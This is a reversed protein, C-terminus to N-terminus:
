EAPAAAAVTLSAGDTTIAVAGDRDTRWVRAGARRLAELTSPAPHGFRNRAGVSVVADVPAVAALFAATSSTRSGHHGVKLVDARLRGRASGLLDREEDREADGVFLFSRAGYAVRLVLSNDNPGRDPDFSPCPALVEVVVGHMRRAGCLEAPRRLPIRDARARALLEDYGAGAGEAEGQGTDWIEGITARALGATLGGYHDPHPHSLVVLDVRTRRRARLAPAIVRAGVDVSSGVIGGGDIMMSAGDPLDVLAADGQGVDFFTARLLGRPRGADRAVIELVLVAAATAACAAGRGAAGRARAIAVAGVVLAAAQGPTAPPVAVALAPVGAFARAVARVALLAGGAAMACGREAAPWPGLAAHVLCLPLAAAEGIPVALVNAVVGGLPLTPAFTALVPSCPITAATTAAVSRALWQPCRPARKGIAEALPKALALLGGTAAASLLFSVDLAILPDVLALGLTSLSFARTATGRRGAARASLAITLMAAARVASGSAGAFDCYAWALAVGGLATVRGVDVRAALAYCRALVARAARVLGLVVLVLHMGSVALLHALGSTRFADDDARTLDDEGLVLARAMPAAEPDFTAEIRDRAARRARDVLAGPGRGRALVRVDLASGSRVIGRAAAALRPDGSELEAFRELPALQAIVAVEDGRALAPPGGYLAVRLPPGREHTEGCRWGELEAVWRLAGGREVPEGAVRGTAVCREVGPAWADAAARAAEFAIVRAEARWAGVAVLILAGAAAAGRRAAGGRAALIAALAAGAATWGPHALAWPGAALAAGACLLLTEVGRAELM